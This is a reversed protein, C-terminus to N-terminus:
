ANDAEQRAVDSLDDSWEPVDVTVDFDNPKYGPWGPGLINDGGYQTKAVTPAWGENMIARLVRNEDTLLAIRSSQRTAATQLYAVKSM